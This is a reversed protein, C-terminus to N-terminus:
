KKKKRESKFRNEATEFLSAIGLAALIFVTMQVLYAYRPQIEVLLYVGFTVFVTNVVTVLGSTVTKKVVARVTGLVSLAYAFVLSWKSMDTLFVAADLIEYRKGLFGVSEGYLHGLSWEIGSGNWFRGIKATFLSFLDGVPVLVRQKILARMAERDSLYISDADSYSGLTEHNFGLVFKWEPASNSLGLPSVGSLVFLRSFIFGLLFYTGLMAFLSVLSSKLNTKNICIVLCLAAAFLPVISEPRLVNAVALLAGFFVYRLYPRPSSEFRVLIYIGLLILASSPIQNSLVSVYFLPFPLFCYLLSAARAARKGAFREAILYVLTVSAAASVCNVIWLIRIDNWIGLFLTQFWVYGIQYPWLTFYQETNFSTDGSLLRQSADWLVAFDSEAPTKVTLAILLRVTLAVAFLWLPFMPIEAKYGVFLFLAFVLLTWLTTNGTVFLPAAVFVAAFLGIWFLKLDLRRIGKKVERKM